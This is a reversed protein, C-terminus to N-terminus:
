PIQKPSPLRLRVLRVSVLKPWGFWGERHHITLSPSDQNLKKLIKLVHLDSLRLGNGARLHLREVSTGRGYLEYQFNITPFREELHNQLEPLILACMSASDWSNHPVPNPPAIHNAVVVVAVRPMLMRRNFAARRARWGLLFKAIQISVGIPKMFAFVHDVVESGAGGTAAGGIRLPIARECPIGAAALFEGVQVAISDEDPRRYSSSTLDRVHFGVKEPPLKEFMSFVPPYDKEWPAM